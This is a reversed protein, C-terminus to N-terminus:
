ADYGEGDKAVTAAIEESLAHTGGDMSKRPHQKAHRKLAEIIRRGRRNNPAVATLTGGCCPCPGVYSLTAESESM